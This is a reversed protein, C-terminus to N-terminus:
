SIFLAPLAPAQPADSEKTLLAAEIQSEFKKEAVSVPM